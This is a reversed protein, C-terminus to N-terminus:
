LSLEEQLSLIGVADQEQALHVLLVALLLLGGLEDLLDLNLSVPRKFHSLLHIENKVLHLQDQCPVVKDSALDEASLDGLLVDILLTKLFLLDSVEVVHDFVINMLLVM